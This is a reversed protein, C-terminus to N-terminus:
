KLLNGTSTSTFNWADSYFQLHKRKLKATNNRMTTSPEQHSPSRSEKRCSAREWGARLRTANFPSPSRSTMTLSSQLQHWWNSSGSLIGSSSQEGIGFFTRRRLFECTRPKSQCTQFSNPYMISWEWLCKWNKLTKQLNFRRFLLFKKKM